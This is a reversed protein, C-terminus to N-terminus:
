RNDSVQLPAPNNFRRLKNIRIMQQIDRVYDGGRESYRRLGEALDTGLVPKNHRRKSARIARLDRYALNTNITHLYRNVSQQVSDFRAVEHTLGEDRYKPTMGCGPTFCWIGFFNNGERAFRSRGWASETASQALMLSAPVTDVRKLLEALAKRTKETPTVRYRASLDTLLTAEADTLDHGAALSRSISLVRAREGRVEANARQVKPLMFDFFAQKRDGINGIASFDPTIEPPPAVAPEPEEEKLNAYYLVGVMLAVIPLILIEPRKM